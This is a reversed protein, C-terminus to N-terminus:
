CKKNVSQEIVMMVSKGIKEVQLTGRVNPTLVYNIGGRM